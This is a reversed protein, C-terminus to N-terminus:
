GVLERIKACMGRGHTSVIFSIFLCSGGFLFGIIWLTGEMQPECPDQGCTKIVDIWADYENGGDFPRVMKKLLALRYSYAYLANTRYAEPDVLATTYYYEILQDAAQSPGREGPPPDARDGQTAAYGYFPGPPNGAPVCLKACLIFEVVVGNAAM